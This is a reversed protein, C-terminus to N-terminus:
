QSLKTLGNLEEGEVIADFIVFSIRRMWVVDKVDEVDEQIEFGFRSNLQSKKNSPNM